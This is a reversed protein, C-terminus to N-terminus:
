ANIWIWDYLTRHRHASNARHRRLNAHDQRRAHIEGNPLRAHVGNRWRDAARGHDGENCYRRRVGKGDLVPRQETRGSRAAVGRALVVIAGGARATQLAAATENPDVGPMALYGGVYVVAVNDSLASMLDGASLAKNAGFCHIFRRDEGKVTLVVTKSTVFDDATSVSHTRVGREELYQRVATGFIDKGVKGVLSVDVGLRSLGIALNAACGGCHLEIDDVQLLHGAAPIADIVPCCIDAVVIGFALVKPNNVTEPAM